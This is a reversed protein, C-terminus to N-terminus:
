TRLATGCYGCRVIGGRLLFAEPDRNNRDGRAQQDGAAAASRRCAGAVGTTARRGSGLRHTGRRATVVRRRAARQTGAGKRVELAMGDPQRYLDPPAPHPSPRRDGSPAAGPRRRCGRRPSAGPSQRASSGAAIEAFIRRVVWATEPNEELRTKVPKGDQGPEEVWRYGYTPRPGVAPKGSQVRALRGRMTRERIKAHEVKAAYGRVFRILEGEPSDDLPETVFAVDVGAHDAESLIVGLHVPEGSLRDIAYAIVTDVERRRVAERLATLSRDSGSNRGPTSTPTSAPSRGARETPM